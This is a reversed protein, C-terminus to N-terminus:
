VAGEPVLSGRIRAELRRRMTRPQPDTLGVPIIANQLLPSIGTKHCLYAVYAAAPRLEAILDAVGMVHGLAAPVDVQLANARQHVPGASDGPGGCMGQATRNSDSYTPPPVPATRGALTRGPIPRGFPGAPRSTRRRWEPM